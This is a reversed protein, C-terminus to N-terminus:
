ALLPEAECQSLGQVPLHGFAVVVTSPRCSWQQGFNMLYLCQIDFAGGQLFSWAKSINM